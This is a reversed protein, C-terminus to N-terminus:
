ELKFSAPTARVQFHNFPSSPRTLVPDTSAPIDRSASQAHQTSACGVVLLLWPIFPVSYRKHSCM